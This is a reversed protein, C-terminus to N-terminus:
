PLGLVGLYTQPPAARTDVETLEAGTSVYYECWSRHGLVHDGIALGARKSAVVEGVSAGEMPQSRASQVDEISRDVMTASMYPDVSLYRNRILVQGEGIAPLPVEVVEFDDLSPLFAPRRRLRIERSVAVKM